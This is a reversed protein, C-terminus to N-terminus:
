QTVSLREGNANRSPLTFFFTSGSRPHSEIWLRGGHREVITKCIALGIGSGPYQQSHLRQFAQFIKESHSRDVGIGNDRVFLTWGDDQAQAGIHVLPRKETCFKIGNVVLNQFLKALQSADAVITPLPDHTVVAGTEAVLEGLYTTSEGLHSGVTPVARGSRTSTVTVVLQDINDVIVALVGILRLHLRVQM